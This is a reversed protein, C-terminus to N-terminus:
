AVEKPRRHHAWRGSLPQQPAPPPTPIRTPELDLYRRGSVRRHTQLYRRVYHEQIANIDDPTLNYLVNISIQGAARRIADEQRSSLTNM